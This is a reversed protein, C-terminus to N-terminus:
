TITKEKVPFKTAQNTELTNIPSDNIHQPIPSINIIHSLPTAVYTSKIQNPLPEKLISIM